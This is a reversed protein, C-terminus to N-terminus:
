VDQKRETLAEPSNTGWLAVFEGIEPRRARALADSARAVIPGHQQDGNHARIRLADLLALDRYDLEILEMLV